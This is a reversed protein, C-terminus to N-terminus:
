GVALYTATVHLRTIELDVGSNQHVEIEFYDEADFKWFAQFPHTLPEDQLAVREDQAINNTTNLKVNMRREGDASASWVVWGSVLYVGPTNITVRSTANQESHMADTDFRERNFFLITTVSNAIPQSVSGTAYVAPPNTLYSPLFAGLGAPGCRLINTAATSLIPEAIFPKGPEGTGTLSLCPTSSVNAPCHILDECGCGRDVM